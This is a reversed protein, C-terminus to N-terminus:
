QALAFNDKDKVIKANIQIECGLRKVAKVTFIEINNLGRTENQNAIKAFSRTPKREHDKKISYSMKRLRNARHYDHEEEQVNQKYNLTQFSQFKENM